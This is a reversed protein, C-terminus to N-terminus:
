KTLTDVRVQHGFIWSIADCFWYTGIAPDDFPVSIRRAEYIRTHHKLIMAM